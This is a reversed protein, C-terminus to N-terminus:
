RLGDQTLPVLVADVWDTVYVEHDPALGKILDGFIAVRPGSFPTVVLGAPSGMRERAIARLTCFPDPSSRRRPCV